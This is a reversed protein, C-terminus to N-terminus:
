MVHTEAPKAQTFEHLSAEFPGKGSYMMISWVAFLNYLFDTCYYMGGGGFSFTAQGDAM